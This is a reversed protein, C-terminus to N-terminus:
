AVTMIVHFVLEAAKVRAVWRGSVGNTAFALGTAIKPRSVLHIPSLEAASNVVLQQSVEKQSSRQLFM